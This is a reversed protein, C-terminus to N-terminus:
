VTKVTGVKNKKTFCEAEVHGVRRCYTCRKTSKTGPCAYAKHGSKGCTFCTVPGAEPRRPTDRQLRSHHRNQNHNSPKDPRTTIPQNSLTSLYQFLNEPTTYGGAKAGTVVMDDDIGGVICSVADAGYIKCASVLASKEYFYKAYSENPLKRRRMMECLSIYYDLKSPFAACIKTKWEDWSFKITPLGKYWTEALGRLKSLALYITAEESWGFVQRLEDVKQCWKDANQGKDEPDFPPVVDGRPIVGTTGSTRGVIQGLITALTEM